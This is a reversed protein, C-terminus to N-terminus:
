PAKTKPLEDMLQCLLRDGNLSAQFPVSYTSNMQPDDVDYGNFTVRLLVSRPRKQFGPDINQGTLPCTYSARESKESRYEKTWILRTRGAISRNSNKGSPRFPENGQEANYTGISAAIARAKTSSV